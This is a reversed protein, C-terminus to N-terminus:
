VLARGKPLAAFARPSYRTAQSLDYGQRLAQRPSVVPHMTGGSDLLGYRAGGDSILKLWGGGGRSAPRVGAHGPATVPRPVPKAVPKARTPAAQAVQPSIPRVQPAYGLSGPHAQLYAPTPPVQAATAPTTIAAAPTTVVQGLPVAPTPTAGAPAPTAVGTPPSTAPLPGITPTPLPPGLVVLVVTGQRVEPPTGSDTAQAAFGFNGVQTPTGGLVGTPSLSLGNPPSGGSVAWSYPPTGGSAVLAASYPQGQQAPPLVTTSIAEGQAVLLTFSEEASLPSGHGSDTVTAAFTFAGLDTPTGSITGDASLQLGPPLSGQTLAWSYPPTGGQAQLSTSYPFGSAAPPLTATSILLAAAGSRRSALYAVGAVAGAVILGSLVGTEIQARSPRSPPSTVTAAVM